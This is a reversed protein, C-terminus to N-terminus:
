TEQNWDRIMAAVKRAETSVRELALAAGQRAEVSTTEITANEIAEAFKDMTLAAAVKAADLMGKQLAEGLIRDLHEKSLYIARGNDKAM